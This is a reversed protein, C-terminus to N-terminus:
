AEDLTIIIACNNPHGPRGILRPLFHLLDIIKLQIGYKEDVLTNIREFEVGEVIEATASLPTSGHKVEGRYDSPQLEVCSNKRLRKAKWTESSTVFGIRGGGADVPWVPVPKPTGDKKFTTFAIYKENAYDKCEITM